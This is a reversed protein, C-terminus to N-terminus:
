LFLSFSFPYNGFGLLLSAFYFSLLSSCGHDRYILWFLSLLSTCPYGTLELTLHVDGEWGVTYIHFKTEDSFCLIHTLYLIYALSGLNNLANSLKYPPIYNKRRYRLICYSNHFTLTILLEVLHSCLLWEWGVWWATAKYVQKAFESLQTLTEM